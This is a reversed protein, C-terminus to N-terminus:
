RAAAQQPYRVIIYATNSTSDGWRRYREFPAPNKVVIPFRGARRLLNEDLTVQL